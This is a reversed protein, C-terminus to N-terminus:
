PPPVVDPAALSALPLLAAAPCLSRHTSAAAIRAVVRSQQRTGAITYTETPLPHTTTTTPAPRHQPPTARLRTAFRHHMATPRPPPPATIHKNFSAPPSQAELLAPHLSPPVAFYRDVDGSRFDVELLATESEYGIAAIVTSRVPTRRMGAM